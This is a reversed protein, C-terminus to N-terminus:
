GRFVALRVLITISQLPFQAAVKPICSGSMASKLGVTYMVLSMYMPLGWGGVLFWMVAMLGWGWIMWEYEMVVM